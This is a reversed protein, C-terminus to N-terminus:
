GGAQPPAPEAPKPAPTAPTPAPAVEPPEASASEAPAGDSGAPPHFSPGPQFDAFFERWSESVSNPDELYQAYLDEVYGSNFGFPDKM